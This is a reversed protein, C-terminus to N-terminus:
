TPWRTECGTCTSIAKVDSQSDMTANELPTQSQIFHAGGIVFHAAFQAAEKPDDIRGRLLRDGIEQAIGICAATLLEPDVHILHFQTAFSIIDAKLEDFLAHSEPTDFRVKTWKPVDVADRTTPQNQILFHFYAAFASILFAKFDDGAQKRAARLLPKFRTVGDDHLAHFVEEKSKFYNYFTGSALSTRRIIDRVCTAEYGLEAFIQQGAALIAARNALKTAERKSVPKAISKSM